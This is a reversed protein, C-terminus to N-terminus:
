YESVKVPAPARKNDRTIGRNRREFESRIEDPFSAGVNRDVDTMDVVARQLGRLAAADDDGLLYSQIFEAQQPSVSAGSLVKGTIASAKSRAERARNAAQRSLLGGTNLGVGPINENKGGIGSENPDVPNNDKDLLRGTKWDIKVGYANALDDYTSRLSAMDQKHAGYKTVMDLRDKPQLDQVDQGQGAPLLKARAALEEPTLPKEVYGGGTAAKPQIFANQISRTHKGVSANQLAQENKVNEQNTLALFKAAETQYHPLKAENAFMQAQLEASKTMALRTAAEAQGMDFGYNDMMQALSNRRSVRGSEIEDRQAAIDRDIARQTMEFAFNPAGTMASSYAGLGQAIALGLSAFIGRDQFYRDPNVHATKEYQDIDQQLRSRDVKYAAHIANQENQARAAEQELRPAIARQSALQNATQQQGLEMDALTAQQVMHSATLRERAAEPSYPLGNSEITENATTPVMVGQALMRNPDVGPSGPVYTQKTGRLIDAAARQGMVERAQGAMEQATPPAPAPPQAQQAAKDALARAIAENAVNIDPPPQVPGPPLAGPANLAQRADPAADLAGKVRGVQAALEPEYAYMPEGADFHFVGAGEPADPDQEFRLLGVM